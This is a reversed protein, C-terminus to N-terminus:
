EIRTLTVSSGATDTLMLSSGDVLSTVVRPPHSLGGEGDSEDLASNAFAGTGADWTYTGHEASTPITANLAADFESNQTHAVIYRTADVFVLVNYGTGSGLYWAGVIDSAASVKMLTTSGDITLSDGSVTITMDGGPHSLGGEGDSQGLATAAFAGTAPDWTYTGYEAAVPVTENLAADFEANNTHAVIYRSDDVFVLVHYGGGEELL